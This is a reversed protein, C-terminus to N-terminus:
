ESVLMSGPVPAAVTMVGFKGSTRANALAPPVSSHAIELVDGSWSIVMSTVVDCTVV